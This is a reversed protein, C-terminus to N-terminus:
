LIINSSLNDSTFTKMEGSGDEYIFFASVNPLTKLIEKAEKLGTVMFTTSWADAEMCTPAVVTASIIDRQVPYGTRPDITHGYRVGEYTFYNRYNGSTSMAKDDVSIIAIRKVDSAEPKPNDIGIAWLDGNANVGKARLEGGLEIMMNEIGESVLFNFVVDISYGQAIANFDLRVKNMKKKVVKENFTIKDFGIYNKISDIRASDPITPKEQKFNWAQMLPYVTPDFAGHSAEYVAQSAQLVPQFYPLKFYFSDNENFTLIESGKRYTSLSKDFELLLSDVASKFNRSASDLYTINYTTGQAEGNIYIYAVKSEENENFVRNRLFWVTAVALILVLSYIANKQRNNMIIKFDSAFNSSLDM